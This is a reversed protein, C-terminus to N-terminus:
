CEMEKMRNQASLVHRLAAAEAADPDHAALAERIAEHEELAQMARSKKSVSAKRFKTMRKHLSCLTNYYTLQNSTWTNIKITFNIFITSINNCRM